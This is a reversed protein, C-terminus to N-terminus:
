TPHHWVAAFFLAAVYIFTGLEAALLLLLVGTQTPSPRNM